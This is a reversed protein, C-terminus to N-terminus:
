IQDIFFFAFWYLQNNQVSNKKLYQLTKSIQNAVASPTMNMELAIEKYSLDDFKHLTFIKRRREPIQNLLLHITKMKANIDDEGDYPEDLEAIIEKEDITFIRNQKKYWKSIEQKSSKFLISELSSETSLKNRYNWLHIFVNQTVDETDADQRAYKKVFCYVKFFYLEYIEQFCFEDGESLRVILDAAM